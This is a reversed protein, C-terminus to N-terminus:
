QYIVRKQWSFLEGEQVIDENVSIESLLAEQEATLEVMKDNYYSIDSDSCATLILILLLFCILIQQKM